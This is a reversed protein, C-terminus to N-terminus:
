LLWPLLLFLVEEWHDAITNQYNARAAYEVRRRLMSLKCICVITIGMYSNCIGKRGKRQLSEEIGNIVTWDRTTTTTTIESKGNKGRERETRSYSELDEQQM